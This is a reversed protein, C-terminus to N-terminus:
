QAPYPCTPGSLARAGNLMPPTLTILLTLDQVNINKAFLGKGPLIDWRASFNADGPSTNMRYVPALFSTLDQVTIKNASFPPQDWLDAPWNNFGCPYGANTGIFLAENDDTFGDGDFDAGPSDHCGDSDLVGDKDEFTLTVDDTTLTAESPDKIGNHNLDQPSGLMGDPGTQSDVGPCQDTADPFGDNDNDPDPCGDSDKFADYDEALNRCDHSTCSLTGAPDFCLSGQDSGSCSAATMGPDCIGDNDNDPDPCGDSDQFGDYDEAATPCPDGVDPIGDGDSNAPAAFPATFQSTGTGNTATATINPLSHPAGALSFVGSADATASGMWIRGQDSQDNYVDVQCGACAFGSVTGGAVAGIVPVPTVPPTVNAIGGPAGNSYISNGRIIANSEMAGVGGGTNFAITNGYGPAAMGVQTSSAPGLNGFPVSGVWVGVGNPIDGAGSADTGIKNGYIANNSSTPVYITSTVMIGIDSGSILNGEGPSPGGIVTGTAAVLIGDGEGPIGGTMGLDNIGDTGIYNGKIITGTAAGLVGVAVGNDSETLVNRQIALAGGVKNATGIVFVAATD